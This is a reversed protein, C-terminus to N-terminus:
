DINRSSSLQESEGPRDPSYLQFIMIFHLLHGNYIETICLARNRSSSLQESEGPRDPSYLQFIMIFHLLHGNYIETICLARNGSSSLQESEGPRDPLSFCSYRWCISRILPSSAPNWGMAVGSSGHFRSWSWSDISDSQSSSPTPSSNKQPFYSQSSSSNGVLSMVGPMLSSNKQPVYSQSSSSKRVLSMVGPMLSSNKGPVYSKADIFLESSPCQFFGELPFLM